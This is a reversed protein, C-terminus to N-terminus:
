SLIMINEGFDFSFHYFFHKSLIDHFYYMDTVEVTRQNDFNQINHKM